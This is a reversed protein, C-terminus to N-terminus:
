IEIEVSPSSASRGRGKSKPRVTERERKVSDLQQREAIQANGRTAINFNEARINSYGKRQNSLETRNDALESKGASLEANREAIQINRDAISARQNSLQKRNSSLEASINSIGAGKDSLQSNRETIQVSRDAIADGQNSLQERNSNLQERIENLDTTQEARKSNREFVNILQEKTALNEFDPYYDALKSLRIKCKREGAKQRKIDTFTIHKKNENWTTEFGKSEMLKIFHEKSLAKESNKLVELACNLVYSDVEGKEARNLLQYTNKENVVKESRKEGKATYGKEPAAQFGDRINIENQLKKIEELEKKTLHFKKGDVFSVSNVIFHVHIHARDKHVAVLIEYPRFKKSEELLKKAQELAQSPTIIETPAYSQVFHFYERGDMKNFTEKTEIMMKYAREIELCQGYVLKEETKEDKLVYKIIGSLNARKRKGIKLKVAKFVSM